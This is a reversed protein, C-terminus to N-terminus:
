SDRRSALRLRSELPPPARCIVFSCEDTSLSWPVANRQVLTCSTSNFYRLPRHQSPREWDEKNSVACSTSLAQSSKVFKSSKKTALVYLRKVNIHKYQWRASKGRRQVGHLGRPPCQRQGFFFDKFFNPLLHRTSRCAM